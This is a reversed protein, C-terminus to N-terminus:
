VSINISLSEYRSILEAVTPEKAESAEETTNAASLKAEKTSNKKPLADHVSTEKENESSIDLSMFSGTMEEVDVARLGCKESSIDQQLTSPVIDSYKDLSVGSSKVAATKLKSACIRGVESIIPSGSSDLNFYNVFLFNTQQFLVSLVILIYILRM